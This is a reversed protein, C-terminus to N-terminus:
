SSLITRAIDARDTYVADVGLKAVFRLQVETNATWTYDALGHDHDWDVDDKTLRFDRFVLPPQGIEVPACWPAHTAQAHLYEGEMKDTVTTVAEPCLTHFRNVATDGGSSVFITRTRGLKRVLTCTTGEDGTTKLELGVRLTPFTRLVDEISPIRVHRGALPYDHGPGAWIAGLDVRRLDAYTTRAISVPDGVKPRVVDDHAAVLIGDSTARVDADLIDAGAARAARMMEVTNPPGFYSGGAHAIILTRTSRYPSPPCAAASAVNTGVFVLVVALALSARIITSTTFRLMPTQVLAM